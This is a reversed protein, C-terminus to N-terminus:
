DRSRDDSSQTALIAAAAGGGAVAAIILVKTGASMGGGTTTAPPPVPAKAAEVAAPEAAAPAAPAGPLDAAIAAAVSECGGEGFRNLSTVDVMQAAVSSEATTDTTGIVQVRNGWEGTFDQQGRLEIVLRTTQDYLVFKDEKKLVCGLFSSPATAGGAQPEFALATGPVVNALQIGDANFVRLSGRLAAVQVVAEGDRAVRAASDAAAPVIRFAGAEVEYKADLALDSAGAELVVRDALVKAKSNASLQFRAGTSLTVRSPATTTEIVTGDFVTANGSVQASNVVFRGNATAVGLASAAALAPALVGLVVCTAVLRACVSKM